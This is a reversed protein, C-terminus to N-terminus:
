LSCGSKNLTSSIEPISPIGSRGGLARCKLAAAINAFHMTKELSWRKLLGFIFGAHFVDGAGTTDVTHVKHGQVRVFSKGDYGLAGKKGLTVVVYHPGLKKLQKLAERKNGTGTFIKPFEESCVLSHTLRILKETGPFVKEADFVTHMGKASAWKAAQVAADIEHGDVHLIRGRIVSPKKFDRTSLNGKTDRKWFITREGDKEPVLIFATQTKAGKKLILGSTDINEKELSKRVFHGCEDDGAKGIYATTVNWRSLAVLATAVQGGGQKSFELANMKINPRPFFPIRCLYDVSNYGLGVVDVRNM